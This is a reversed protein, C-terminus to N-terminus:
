CSRAGRRRAAIGIARRRHPDGRRCQLPRADAAADSGARDVNSRQLELIATDRLLNMYAIVANLLVTQETTRLTERAAFVQAEAQRTRNGTQFGNFLTQTATIGLTTM